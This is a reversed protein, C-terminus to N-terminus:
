SRGTLELLGAVHLGLLIKVQKLLTISVIQMRNSNLKYKLTYFNMM